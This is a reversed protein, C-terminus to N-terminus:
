GCRFSSLFSRVDYQIDTFVCRLSSSRPCLLLQLSPLEGKWTRLTTRLAERCRRRMRNRRVASKDLKASAVTGAYIARTRLDSDLRRPAGPLWRVILTRGKWARGQRLVRECIKRGQLRQLEM